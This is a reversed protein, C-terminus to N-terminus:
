CVGCVRGKEREGTRRSDSFVFHASSPSPKAVRTRLTETRPKMGTIGIVLDSLSEFVRRDLAGLSAGGNNNKSIGDGDRYLIIATSFPTALPPLSSPRKSNIYLNAPPEAIKYIAQARRVSTAKGRRREDTTFHNAFQTSVAASLGVCVVVLEPM